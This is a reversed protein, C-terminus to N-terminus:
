RVADAEGIGVAGGLYIEMRYNVGSRMEINTVSENTRNLLDVDRVRLFHRGAEVTQFTVEPDDGTRWIVSSLNGLPTSFDLSAQVVPIEETVLGTRPPGSLIAATLRSEGDPIGSGDPSLVLCSSFFGAISTLLVRNKMRTM